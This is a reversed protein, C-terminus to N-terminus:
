IKQGGIRTVCLTIGFGVLILAVSGGVQGMTPLYYETLWDEAEIETLNDTTVPQGKIRDGVKPEVSIQFPWLGVISGLLLGLLFGLTATRYRVLMWKILNAVAVVGIVVGLGVPLLVTLAPKMAATLDRLELADKFQDIATLISVYQGMLLLIYGGSLGPLVMASAGALGGLFSMLFNSEGTGTVNFANLVALLVMVTFAVTAAGFLGTSIPNAMKWVAPVGGLTLGIFLSYMIWRQNVVLDKLVGAGALIAIGAAGVILVLVLLSRFRFRFRTVDAISDIFDPYVGAALLMTGGSIGPVLNAMGMLVGGFVSKSALTGYSRSPEIEEDTPVATM